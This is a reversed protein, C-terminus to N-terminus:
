PEGGILGAHAGLTVTVPIPLEVKTATSETTAIVVVGGVQEVVPTCRMATIKSVM